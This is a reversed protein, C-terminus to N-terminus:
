KTNRIEKYIRILYPSYSLAIGFIIGNVGYSYLGIGLSIMLIKQLILYKSYSRYLKNGLIESTALGFIVYGIVM